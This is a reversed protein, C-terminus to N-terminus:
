ILTTKVFNRMNQELQYIYQLHTADVPTEKSYIVALVESGVANKIKGIAMM